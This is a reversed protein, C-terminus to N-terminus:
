LRKWSEPSMATHFVGLLLVEEAQFIYHVSYPFIRLSALRVDKYRVSYAAPNRGIKEVTTKVQVVFRKSLDIGHGRYWEKAELVDDKAAPLIRIKYSKM